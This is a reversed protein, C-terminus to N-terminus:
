MSVSLSLQYSREPLTFYMPNNNADYTGLAYIDSKNFLNNIQFGLKAEKAWGAVKKITYSSAFNAVTYANLPITEGTDGFRSGVHKATLSAYLQGQNYIVGTAATTKPTNPLWQNNTKDKASNLSYNGYLSFGEGVYYTGEGEVGKYTAGGANSFITGNGSPSSVIKNKFDIQYIDASLALRKSAWTTGLQYNMTEEPKLTGLDPNTKYFSNLNPAQFGKALQVYASWNKEIAYHATLAPLAKTWTHDGSYPLGTKQNVQADLTRRFSAYKLGPTITLADSAKWAYDVY